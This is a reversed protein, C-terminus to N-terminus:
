IQGYGGEPAYGRRSEKGNTNKKSELQEKLRLVWNESQWKGDQFRESQSGIFNQLLHKYRGNGNLVKYEKYAYFQKAFEDIRDNTDMVYLFQSLIIHVNSNKMQNLDWFELVDKCIDSEIYFNLTQKAKDAKPMGNPPKAPVAPVPVQVEANENQIKALIDIQQQRALEKEEKKKQEEASLHSRIPFEDSFIEDSNKRKYGLYNGEVSYLCLQYPQINVGEIIYAPIIKVRSWKKTIDLYTRQIGKSTLINYKDYYERDFIKIMLCFEFMTYFDEVPKRLVKKCFQAVFRDSAEVYYSDKFVRAHLLTWFTFGADEFKDRLIDIKDNDSIDTDLRMYKLGEGFSKPM